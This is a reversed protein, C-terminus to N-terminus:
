PSIQEGRGLYLRSLVQERRRPFPWDSAKGSVLDLLVRGPRVLLCTRIKHLMAFIEESLVFHAFEAAKGM